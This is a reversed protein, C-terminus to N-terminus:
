QGDFDLLSWSVPVPDVNDYVSSSLQIEIMKFVEYRSAKSSDHDDYLEIEWSQLERRIAVEGSEALDQGDNELSDSFGLSVVGTDDVDEVFPEIENESAIKVPPAQLVPGNFMSLPM